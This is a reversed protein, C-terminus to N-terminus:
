PGNVGAIVPKECDLISSVLRQWGRQITRAVDGMIREPAGEPRPPQRGGARLDAGTCFYRDGAATVVVVRVAPDGSAEDMWQPIQDRMPQTLANGADPRNITIWLVGDALRRLLEEGQGEAVASSWLTSRWRARRSPS